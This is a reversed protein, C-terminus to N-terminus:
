CLFQRLQLPFNLVKSVLFLYQGEKSDLIYGHDVYLFAITM